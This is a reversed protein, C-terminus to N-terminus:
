PAARQATFTGTRGQVTIQGTMRDGARAGVYDVDFRSFLFSSPYTWSVQDGDVHGRSLVHRRGAKVKPDSTATDACVGSLIQGVQQFDCALTFAFGAVRGSVTWRGTAGEQAADAPAAALIALLLPTAALVRRM